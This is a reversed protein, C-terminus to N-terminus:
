IVSSAMVTSLDGFATRQILLIKELGYQRYINHDPNAHVPFPLHLVEAYRKAKDIPEGLILVIEVNHHKFNEYLKGLQTAHSRCQM